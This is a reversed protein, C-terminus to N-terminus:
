AHKLEKKLREAEEELSETRVSDHLLINKIEEDTMKTFDYLGAGNVLEFLYDEVQIVWHNAVMELEENTYDTFEIARFVKALEQIIEKNSLKKSDELKIVTQVTRTTPVEKRIKKILNKM